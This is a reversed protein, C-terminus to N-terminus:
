RDAGGGLRWAATTYAANGYLTWSKGSEDTLSSKDFHHLSKTYQDDVAM